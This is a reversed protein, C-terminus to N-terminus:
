NLFQHYKGPGILEKFQNPTLELPPKSRFLLAYKEDEPVLGGLAECLREALLLWDFAEGEIIYRYQHGQVEEQEDTWLGIAELLAIYWHKGSAIGEQFHRIVADSNTVVVKEM